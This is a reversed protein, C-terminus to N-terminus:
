PKSRKRYKDTLLQDIKLLIQMSIKGDIKPKAGPTPKSKLAGWGGDRYLALWKYLATRHVDFIVAVDEPSKGSQVAKVARIRMDELTKHDLKRADTKRM